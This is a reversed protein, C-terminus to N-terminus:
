AEIRKFTIAWVYPNSEWDAGARKGNISQWLSVFGYRRQAGCLSGYKRSFWKPAFESEVGEARADDENIAQLRHVRVDTIELLIRSAWRPLHISPRFKFIARAAEDADAQFMIDDAGTCQSLPGDGHPRWAERVYLRDGVVGHRCEALVNEKANPWLWYGNGRKKDFSLSPFVGGAVRVAPQPKIVRRTQTKRGELIARVMPGSFLIPRERM